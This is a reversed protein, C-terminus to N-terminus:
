RGFAAPRHIPSVRHVWEGKYDIFTVQEGWCKGDSFGDHKQWFILPSM